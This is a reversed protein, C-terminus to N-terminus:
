LTNIFETLAKAMVEPEMYDNVSDGFFPEILICDEAQSEAQQINYKGNGGNLLNKAGRNSKGYNDAMFDCFSKALAHSGIYLAECGGVTKNYSNFHTEIIVDAKWAGAHRCANTIGGDNRTFEKVEHKADGILSNTREWYYYESIGNHADAGQERKDHGRIIAVRLKGTSPTSPKDEPIIDKKWIQKFYSM